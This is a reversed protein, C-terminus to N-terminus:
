KCWLILTKTKLKKLEGKNKENYSPHFAVIKSFKSPHEIGMKLAIAAGWDYGILIPKIINFQKMFIKVIKAPGNKKLIKDSKSPMPDGTSDGYGPMDIAYIQHNIYLLAPIQHM